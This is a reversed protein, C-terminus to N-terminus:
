PVKSQIRVELSIEDEMTNSKIKKKEIFMFLSKVKYPHFEELLLALIALLVLTSPIVIVSSASHPVITRCSTFPSTNNGCSGADRFQLAPGICKSGCILDRCHKYLCSGSSPNGIDAKCKNDKACQILQTISEKCAASYLINPQCTGATAGATSACVCTEGSLCSTDGCSATSSSRSIVACKDSAPDCQLNNAINCDTLPIKGDFQTISTLPQSSCADGANKSFAAVCIMGSCVDGVACDGDERCDMSPSIAVCAQSSCQQGYPCDNNDDCKDPRVLSCVDDRCKLNNACELDSVCAEGAVAFQLQRCSGFTVANQQDSRINRYCGLDAFCRKTKTIDGANGDCPGNLDVYPQCTQELDKGSPTCYHQFPCETDDKCVENAKKCFDYRCKAEINHIMYICLILLIITKM